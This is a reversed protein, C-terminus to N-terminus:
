YFIMVIFTLAYETDTIIYEVNITVLNGQTLIDIVNKFIEIYLEELKNSTVIYIGPLKLDTISDKFMIILIQVMGPPKYWTGDIFYYKSQRIHGILLDSTWIAYESPIRKNKNKCEILFYKYTRLIHNGNRDSNNEFMYQKTFKYSNKKFNSIINNISNNDIKFTYNNCTYIKYIEDKIYKKNYFTLKDFFYYIKNMFEEKQSNNEVVEPLNEFNMKLCDNSHNNLIKYNKNILINDKKNSDEITYLIQANCFNGKHTKNGEKKRRYQCSFIKYKRYDRYEKKIDVKRNTINYRMGKYIIYNDYCELLTRDLEGIPSILEKPKENVKLNKPNNTFMPEVKIKQTDNKDIKNNEQSINSINENNSYNNYKINDFDKDFNNYLDFLEKITNEDLDQNINKNEKIKIINDQKEKKDIANNDSHANKEKKKKSKNKQKKKEIKPYKYKKSNNEKKM